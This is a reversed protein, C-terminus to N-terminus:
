TFRWTGKSLKQAKVIIPCFCRDREFPTNQKGVTLATLSSFKGIPLLILHQLKRLTQATQLAQCVSSVKELAPPLFNSPQM